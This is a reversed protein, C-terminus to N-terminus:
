KIDDQISDLCHNKGLSFDLFKCFGILLKNTNGLRINKGVCSSITEGAKGFLYYNTTFTCFLLNFPVQLIINWALDQVYASAWFYDSIALLSKKIGRLFLLHILSVILLVLGIKSLILVKTIFCAAILLLVSFIFRKM